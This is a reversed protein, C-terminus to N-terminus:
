VESRNIYYVYAYGTGSSGSDNNKIYCNSTYSTHNSGMTPIDVGLVKYSKASMCAVWFCQRNDADAGWDTAMVVTAGMSSVKAASTKSEHLSLTYDGYPLILAMMGPKIEFMEGRPIKYLKFGLANKMVFDKIALAGVPTRMNEDNSNMDALDGGYSNSQMAHKMTAPVIPKRASEKKTIEDKSAPSICLRQYEDLELGSSPNYMYVLGATGRQSTSTDPVVIDGTGGGASPTQWEPTGLDNTTLVKGANNTGTAPVGGNGIPLRGDIDIAPIKPFDLSIWYSGSYIFRYPQSQFLWKSYYGTHASTSGLSRRYIKKAGLGNVNLTPTVSTSDTHPIITLTVGAKLETISPVNAEYAAGTGTTTIAKEELNNVRGILSAIDANFDNVMENIVDTEERIEDLAADVGAWTVECRHDLEHWKTGDWWYM